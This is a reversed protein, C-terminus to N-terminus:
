AVCARLNMGSACLSACSLLLGLSVCLGISSPCLDPVVYAGFACPSVLVFRVCAFWRLPATAFHVKKRLSLWVAGLGHQLVQLVM